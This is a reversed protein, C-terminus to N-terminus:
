EIGEVNGADTVASMYGVIGVNRGILQDPFLISLGISGCAPIVPLLVSPSKRLSATKVLFM